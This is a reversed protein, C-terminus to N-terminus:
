PELPVGDEDVMAGDFGVWAYRSSLVALYAEGVEVMYGFKPHTRGAWLRIGDPETFPPELLMTWWQESWDPVAITAVAFGVDAVVDVTVTLEPSVTLYQGQRGYPTDSGTSRGGWGIDLYRLRLEAEKCIAAEIEEASVNPDVAWAELAVVVDRVGLPLAAGEATM